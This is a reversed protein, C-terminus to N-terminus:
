IGDQYSGDASELNFYSRQLRINDEKLEVIERKLSKKENDLEQMLSYSNHGFLLSYIYIATISIVTVFILVQKLSFPKSSIFLKQSSKRVSHDIQNYAEYLDM